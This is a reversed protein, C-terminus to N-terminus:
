NASIVINKYIIKLQTFTPIKAVGCAHGAKFNYIQVLRCIRTLLVVLEMEFRGRIGTSVLWSNRNLDAVSGLELYGVMIICLPCQFKIIYIYEFSYFTRKATM